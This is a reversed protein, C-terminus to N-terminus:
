LSEPLWALSRFDCTTLSTPSLKGMGLGSQCSARFHSAQGLIVLRMEAEHQYGPHKCTLSNWILPATVVSRALRNLFEMGTTQNPLHRYAYRLAAELIADAKDFGVV